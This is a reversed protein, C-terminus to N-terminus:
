GTGAALALPLTRAPNRIEEAVYTAANWGSYGVYIFFLSVAFQAPLSRTSTRVADQSFHAWDGQGAVFGLVILGLIVIM